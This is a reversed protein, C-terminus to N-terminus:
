CFSWYIIFKELIESFLFRYSDRVADPSDALLPKLVTLDLAHRNRRTNLTDLFLCETAALPQSVHDEGRAAPQFLDSGFTELVGSYFSYSNWLTM